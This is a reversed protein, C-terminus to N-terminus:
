PHCAEREAIVSISAGDYRFPLIGSFREVNKLVCAAFATALLDAPGMHTESQGASTDFEVTAQRARASSLGDGRTAAEVTYGLAPM